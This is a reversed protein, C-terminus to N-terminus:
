GEVIKLWPPLSGLDITVTQDPVDDIEGALFMGDPTQVLLDIGFQGAGLRQRVRQLDLQMDEVISCKVFAVGRLPPPNSISQGHITSVAAILAMGRRQERSTLSGQEIAYALWQALECLHAQEQAGVPALPAGATTYGILAGDLRLEAKRHVLANRLDITNVYLAKVPGWIASPLEGLVGWGQQLLRKKEGAQWPVGGAPLAPDQALALEVVGDLIRWATGFFLSRLGEKFEDIAQASISDETHASIIKGTAEPGGLDIADRRDGRMPPMEIMQALVQRDLAYRDLFEARTTAASMINPQDQPPTFNDPKGGQLFSPCQDPTRRGCTQKPDSGAGEVHLM